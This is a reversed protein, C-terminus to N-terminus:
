AGMVELIHGKLAQLDEWARKEGLVSGWLAAWYLCLNQTTAQLMIHCPCFLAFLSWFKGRATEELASCLFASM